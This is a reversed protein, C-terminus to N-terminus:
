VSQRKRRSSRRASNNKTPDFAFREGGATQRLPQALSPDVNRSATPRAVSKPPRALIMDATVEEDDPLCLLRVPNERAELERAFDIMEKTTLLRGIGAISRVDQESLSAMFQGGTEVDELKLEIRPEFSSDMEDLDDDASVDGVINDKYAAEIIWFNTETLQEKSMPDGFSQGTKGRNNLNHM